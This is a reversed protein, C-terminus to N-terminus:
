KLLYLQHGGQNNITLAKWLWPLIEALQNELQWPPNIIAMGCGNLHQPLDPHITLEVILISNTINQRLAAHFRKTQLKDKIPYWIAYIGTEFRKLAIPLSLALRTFEDPNEYPPDILIVGRREKPPLFAKLGIFGDMHHVSAQPHGSLAARLSQYEQPHLESAILSDHPRGMLQAILPSGPYYHLSSFKAGTLRNNIAHICNLYHKILRPPNDQKIVKLIGGAFEKNKAASDSFLDYYGSGAHTDICCYPTAKQQLQEIIAVLIIHKMVDAFNGAHYLHRYNM